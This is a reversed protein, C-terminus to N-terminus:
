NILFIRFSFIIIIIYKLKKKFFCFLNIIFIFVMVHMMKINLNKKGLNQIHNVLQEVFLDQNILIILIHNIFCKLIYM